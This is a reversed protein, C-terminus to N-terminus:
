PTPVALQRSYWGGTWADIGAALQKARPRLARAAAPDTQAALEALVRLREFYLQNIEDLVDDRLEILERAERSVDIAEPHYAVDGFDWSVILQLQLDRYRDEDRDHLRRLGGSVYAEDYEKDRSWGLDGTARLALIPLWGRRAVGRRLEAIREPQLDLYRLAARQVSHVDPGALDLAPPAVPASGVGTSARGVWLGERTAAYLAAEGLALDQAAAAAAAAAGRGGGAAAAM